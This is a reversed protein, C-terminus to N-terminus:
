KKVKNLANGVREYAKSLKAKIEATLETETQLVIDKKVENSVAIKIDKIKGSLPPTLTDGTDTLQKFLDDSTKCLDLFEKKSATLYLTALNYTLKDKDAETTADYAKQFAKVTDDLPPPPPPIPQSEDVVTFETTVQKLILKGDKIWAAIIWVRYTDPKAAFILTDTPDGVKSIQSEKGDYFNWLWTADKDAGTVKITNISDRKPKEPSLSVTLSQAQIFGTLSLFMCLMLVSTMSRVSPLVMVHQQVTRQQKM